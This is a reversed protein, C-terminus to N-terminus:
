RCILGSGNENDLIPKAIQPDQSCISERPVSTLPTPRTPLGGRTGSQAQHWIARNWIFDTVCCLLVISRSGRNRVTGGNEQEATKSAAACSFFVFSGFFRFASFLIPDAPDRDIWPRRLQCGEIVQTEARNGVRWRRIQVDM